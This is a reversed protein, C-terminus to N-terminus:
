TAREPMPRVAITMRTLALLRGEEDSMEVDWVWSTRGRHRATAVASVTGASAPRLFKTENSQGLAINEPGVGEFTARSCLSEALSAYAGGHVIGFPQRVADTVPLRARAVTEGDFEYAEFGLTTDLTVEPEARGPDDEFATM